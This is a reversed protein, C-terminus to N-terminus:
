KIKDDCEIAECVKRALNWKGFHRPLYSEKFASTYPWSNITRYSFWDLSYRRTVRWHMTTALKSLISDAFLVQASNNSRLKMGAYSWLLICPTKGFKTHLLSLSVYQNFDFCELAKWLDPESSSPLQFGFDPDLPVIIIREAETCNACGVCTTHSLLNATLYIRWLSTVCVLQLYRM